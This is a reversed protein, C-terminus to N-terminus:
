LQQKGLDQAVVVAVGIGGPGVHTGLIPGAEVILIRDSPHLHALRARTEEAREPANTHLVALEEFPAMEQLMEIVREVARQFTRTKEIPYVGDSRVELIPKIDFLTGLFAQPFTVRGSRRVYELTDLLALLRTRPIASQVRALTEAKGGGARVCRAAIIAHWGLAMSVTRSDVLTIDLDPLERAAVAAANLMGSLKSSLHISIIHRSTEGLRRYTEEFVGPPPVATTPLSPSAALKAYFEAPTLDVGDLYSRTPFNIFAPVVTINLEAALRQPLCATSDTVIHIHNM